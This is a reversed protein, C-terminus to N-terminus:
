IAEYQNETEPELAARIQEPPIPLALSGCIYATLAEIRAQLENIFMEASAPHRAIKSADIM